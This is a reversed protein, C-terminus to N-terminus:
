LRATRVCFAAVPILLNWSYRPKPFHNWARRSTTLVLSEQRGSHASSGDEDFESLVDGLLSPSPSSCSGNNAFFFCVIFSFTSAVVTSTVFRALAVLSFSGVLCSILKLISSIYFNRSCSNFDNWNINDWLSFPRQSVLWAVGDDQHM